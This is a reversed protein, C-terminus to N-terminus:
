CHLLGFLLHMNLHINIVKFILSLKKRHNCKSIYIYIEINKTKYSM